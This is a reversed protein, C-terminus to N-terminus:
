PNDESCCGKARPKLCGKLCGQEPWHGHHLYFRREDENRDRMEYMIRSTERESQTDLYPRGVLLFAAAVVIVQAFRCRM